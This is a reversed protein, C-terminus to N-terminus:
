RGWTTWKQKNTQINEIEGENKLRLYLIYDKACAAKHSPRKPFFFTEHPGVTSLPASVTLGITSSM